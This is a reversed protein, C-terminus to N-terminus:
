RNGCRSSSSSGLPGPRDKRRSSPRRPLGSTDAHPTKTRCPAATQRSLVDILHPLGMSAVGSSTQHRWETRGFSGFHLLQTGYLKWSVSGSNRGSNSVGPVVETRVNPGMRIM